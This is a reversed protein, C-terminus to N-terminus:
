GGNRPGRFPFPSGGAQHIRPANKEAHYKRLADKAMELAGYALYLNNISGTLQVGGEPDMIIQLQFKREQQEDASKDVTDDV